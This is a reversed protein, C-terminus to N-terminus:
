SSAKSGSASCVNVRYTSVPGSTGAIVLLPGFAALDRVYGPRPLEAVLTPQGGTVLGRWLHDSYGICFNAGWAAVQWYHHEDSVDTSDFLTEVIASYHERYRVADVTMVLHWYYPADYLLGKKLIEADSSELMMMAAAVTLIAM